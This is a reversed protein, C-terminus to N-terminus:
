RGRDNDQVFNANIDGRHNRSVILGIDNIIDVAVGTKTSYEAKQKPASLLGNGNKANEAM